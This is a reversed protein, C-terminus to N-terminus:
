LGPPCDEPGDCNFFYGGCNFDNDDNCTGSAGNDSTCCYQASDACQMNGCSVGMLPHIMDSTPGTKLDGPAGSGGSGGSGGGFGGGAMDKATSSSCSSSALVLALVLIRM